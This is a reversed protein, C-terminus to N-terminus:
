NAVSIFINTTHAGIIFFLLEIRFLIIRGRHIKVRFGPKITHTVAFMEESVVKKYYPIIVYVYCTYVPRM